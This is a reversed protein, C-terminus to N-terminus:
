KPTEITQNIRRMIKKKFIGIKEYNITEGLETEDKSPEGGLWEIKRNRLKMKM